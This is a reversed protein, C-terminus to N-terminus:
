INPPPSLIDDAHRLFIAEDRLHNSLNGFEDVIINAHFEHIINFTQSEDLGSKGKGTGLGHALEETVPNSFLWAAIQQIPLLQFSLVLLLFISIGKKIKM